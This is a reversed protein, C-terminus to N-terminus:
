LIYRKKVGIYPDTFLKSRELDHSPITIIDDQLLNKFCIETVNIYNNKEGYFILM